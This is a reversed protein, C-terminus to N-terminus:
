GIWEQWQSPGTKGMAKLYVSVKGYFILLAEKYIELQIRPPIIFDGGRDIMRSNLDDESLTEIVERLEQDLNRFWVSLKEVSREIGPEENRYSFDQRFSKFSQIYSHEVEGIERCLQGLTPNNGQCRFDLEDDALMDMLQVRLAQYMQFVPFYEQMLSNM